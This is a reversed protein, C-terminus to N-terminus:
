VILKQPLEQYENYSSPLPPHQGLTMATPVYTARTSRYYPDLSTESDSGLVQLFSHYEAVTNAVRPVSFPGGYALQRVLTNPLDSASDFGVDTNTGWFEAVRGNVWEAPTGGSSVTSAGISLIVRATDAVSFTNTSHTIAGGPSLISQRRNAIGIFRSIVFTWQGTIVATNTQNNGASAIGWNATGDIFM